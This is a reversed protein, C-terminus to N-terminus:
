LASLHPLAILAGVGLEIAVSTINFRTTAGDIVVSALRCLGALIWAAALALFAHPEGSILPYLSVGIFVGGYTARIESISHALGPVTQLGILRLAGAPVILGYLGLSLSFLAAAYSTITFLQGTM